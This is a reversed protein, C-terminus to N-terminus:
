VLSLRMQTLSQKTASGILRLKDFPAVTPIGMLYAERSRQVLMLLFKAQVTGTIVTTRDCEVLAQGDPVVAYSCKYTAEIPGMGNTVATGTGLLTGKGDATFFALKERQNHHV